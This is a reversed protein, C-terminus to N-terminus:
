LGVSEIGQVVAFRSDHPCELCGLPQLLALSATFVIIDRAHFKSHEQHVQLLVKFEELDKRAHILPSLIQASVAHLM